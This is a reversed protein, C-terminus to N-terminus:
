LKKLIIQKVQESSGQIFPDYKKLTFSLQKWIVDDELLKDYRDIFGTLRNLMILTELMIRGGLFLKLVESHGSNKCKMCVNITDCKDLITDIDTSFLYSFSQIRKQWEIYNKDNMQIIHFNSNVLFNSVFYEIVKEKSTYKTSIKEFFYRDPRKSYTKESVKVNGQYKFYDYTKRSFHTKLAVYTSYVEFANM